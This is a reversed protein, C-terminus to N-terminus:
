VLTMRLRTVSAPPLTVALSGDPKPRDLPLDRPIVEAPSEFTNAANLKSHTLVTGALEAPRASGVLKIAVEIPESAHTHTLTLTLQKDRVSASGAVRFIKRDKGELSFTVPEAAVRIPVATGNQHDRYMSFVHYNTTEIFRDDTALYLSQLCNVLQAVACLSLKEAHRHFTDLTLGAVLADRLTSIQCFDFEKRIETGSPHWCGWEDVIFKIEHKPDFEGMAKWHENIFTEMYNAKDLLDYWQATTFQTATGSSGCYYHGSFGNIPATAADRWKKLFRRTWSVDGGSPGCAVLYLPVGYKPVWTTFKRYETCYDEPTYTGGCGWNENGVSWLRVKFPDRDGNAVREGALTTSGTPANCYEVWQQFEEVTGTGVNAALYPEAGVLRCFKIFEHTGFANPEVRESWRNFRRPRGAAPGIGDRWHYRDAFCGGPWRVVPPVLRRFSEVLAKRIGNVNAVKSDPGVWIGDYVVGGIHETFHGHLMPSIVAPKGDPERIQEDLLVDLTARSHKSEAAFLCARSGGGLAAAAAGCALGKLCARRNIPATM